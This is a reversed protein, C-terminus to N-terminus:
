LGLSTLWDFIFTSWGQIALVIREKTPMVLIGEKLAGFIHYLLIVYYVLAGLATSLKALLHDRAKWLIICALFIAAVKVFLFLSPSIDILLAMLPNAEDAVQLELWNLTLLADLINAIFLFCLL